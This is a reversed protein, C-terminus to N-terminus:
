VPRRSEPVSGIESSSRQISHMEAKVAAWVFASSKASASALPSSITGTVVVFSTSSDGWSAARSYQRVASSGSVPARAVTGPGFVTDLHAIILIRGKGTGTQTAVINEPLGDIEAKVTEVSMGLAKLRPILIEAVRRGGEVDGTGSDLNVVQELLKLQEARAGEAAAWIKADRAPLKGASVAPGAAALMLVALGTAARRMM